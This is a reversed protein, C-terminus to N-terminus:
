NHKQIANSKLILEKNSSYGSRERSFLGVHHDVYGALSQQSVIEACRLEEGDQGAWCWQQGASVLLFGDPGPRFCYLGTQVLEFRSSVLM